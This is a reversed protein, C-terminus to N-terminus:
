CSLGWSQRTWQSLADGNEPPSPAPLMDFTLDEPEAASPPAGVNEIELHAKDPSPEPSEHAPPEPPAADEPEAAAAPADAADAAAPAARPSGPPGRPPAPGCLDGNAAVWDDSAVFVVRDSERLAYRELPSCTVPYSAALAPTAPTPRRLMGVPVAGRDILVMALSTYPHRVYAPPLAAIRLTADGRRRAVLLADVVELAGPAFCPLAYAGMVDSRPLVEGAVYRAHLRGEGEDAALRGGAGGGDGGDRRGRLQLM